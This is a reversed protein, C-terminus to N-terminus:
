EALIKLSYKLNESDNISTGNVTINHVDPSHNVGRGAMCNVFSWLQPQERTRLNSIFRTWANKKATFLAKKKRAEERSWESRVTPPPLNAIKWLIQPLRKRSSQV